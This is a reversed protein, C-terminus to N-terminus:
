SRLTTISVRVSATAVEDTCTVDEEGPFEGGVEYQQLEAVLTIERDALPAALVESDGFLGPDGRRALVVMSLFIENVAPESDATIVVETDCHAQEQPATIDAASSLVIVEGAKQTFTPDALPIPTSTIGEDFEGPGTNTVPGGTTTVVAVEDGPPPAAKDPKAIAGGSLALVLALTAVVGTLTPRPVSRLIFGTTRSPRSNASMAHEKWSPGRREWGELM